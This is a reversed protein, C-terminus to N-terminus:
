TATNLEFQELYQVVRQLFMGGLAGDILRHDFSLSLYVMSRIAIADDGGSAGAQRVPLSGGAASIVVPQKKVAGVGLIAVQPQNIIPTGMLNGFVGYNTISFTGNQVEEPLLKKTRARTSLDYVARAIEVLSKEDARKIVPVILGNELAVAVGINIHKKVTVKDEDISSNVLPFDKLAKVVAEIIFPMYTLKFGEREKFLGAHEDMYRAIMTMDAESVAAVHAATHVSRVMHEAISKRIHDMKITETGDEANVSITEGIRVSVPVSPGSPPKGGAKRHAVYDLLDKKTLRGEAGTGAITELETMTIGEERAVNLVLPSYFRNSKPQTPRPTIPPASPKSERPASAAVPASKEKRQDAGVAGEADIIAIVAQVPVVQQEEVLIKTVVGAAPSPIESDVKDTSIELLIEDKKIRDGPKKYWKVITGEMISEGLKPMVVEVNAM